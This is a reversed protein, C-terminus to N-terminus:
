EDVKKPTEILPVPMKPVFINGLHYDPGKIKTVAIAKISKALDSGEAIWVLTM